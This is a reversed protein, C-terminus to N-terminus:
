LQAGPELKWSFERPNIGTLLRLKGFSSVEATECHNGSYILHFGYCDGQDEGTKPRSLMVFSNARSSTTGTFSDNVIRGGTLTQDCRHMERAWAGRFTTFIYDSDDFDLQLSMLRTLQVDQSSANVIKASRGIVDAAEYVYYYLLLKLDYQRDLMTVCLQQVEGASGYSGPLGDLADKEGTIVADEYRFDLTKAGDYLIAEVFPERIDGKGYSSMELRVDELSFGAHEKECINVNGPAFVHKETLIALDEECDAHLRRGYYLHEPHGSPLVSFAYTTHATDLVFTQGMNRIM